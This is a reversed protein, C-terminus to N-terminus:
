RAKPWLHRLRELDADFREGIRKLEGEQDAIFRRQSAQSQNNEEIHRRLLAPVKSPDKKYFELEDELRQHQRGLDELRTHAAKIQKHVQDIAEARERELAEPNPYHTVLARDRRREEAQRAQEEAQRREREEIEAQERATLGPSLRGRVAGSPSLIQQERDRCEAIPRDATLRRGQADVCTYVGGTVTAPKPSTQAVASGAVLVALALVGPGLRM